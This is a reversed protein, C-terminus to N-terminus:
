NCVSDAALTRASRMATSLIWLAGIVSVITSCMLALAAGMLGYRPVLLICAAVGTVVMLVNVPVQARFFRAASVACIVFTGVASVSTVAVLVVLVNVNQAYEPGYLLTLVSRGLFLAVPIGLVAISIAVAELKWVLHSFQITAGEAFLRSLRTMVAQGLAGIIVNVAVVVYALSAFIGLDSSGRYHQLFYRPINVNLSALSIVIGLPMSLFLLSKIQQLQFSWFGEGERILRSGWPVDYLIFVGLWAATLGILSLVLSRSFAFILGFATLSIVGRMMLSVAVRDLREEKQLLGAIVDSMADLAKTISVLVIVTRTVRDCRIAVSIIFVVILGVLTAFFRLTFYHCFKYDSRADTAQVARLQFNTFMFVPAAIALGLAFQGVISPSGLKALVSLM